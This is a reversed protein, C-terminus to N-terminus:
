LDIYFNVYKDLHGKSEYQNGLMKKLFNKQDMSKNENFRQGNKAFSVIEKILHDLSNIKIYFSHDELFNPYIFNESLKNYNFKLYKVNTLYDLFFLTKKKMLAEFLVSTIHCIIIDAWNILESSTFQLSTQPNVSLPTLNGRPKIKLRVETNGLSNIKEEIKKWEIYNVFPRTFIVIKLKDRGPFYPKYDKLKFYNMKELIELWDVSYRSSHIRVIKKKLNIDEPEPVQPESLIYKHCFEISGIKDLFDIEKMGQIPIIKKLRIGTARMILKINMRLCSNLLIKKVRLPLKDDTTISKIKEKKIFKCIDNVNFLPAFHYLYHWLINLKFLIFKPLLFLIKLFLDLFYNKLNIKSLTYYQIKQKLLFQLVKYKKFDHVPFISLIKVKGKLKHDLKYIIPALEDLDPFQHIIFLHM